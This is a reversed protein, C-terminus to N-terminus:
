IMLFRLSKSLLTYYTKNIVIIICTFVKGFKFLINGFKVMLIQSWRMILKMLGNKVLCGILILWSAMSIEIKKLLNLDFTKMKEGSM